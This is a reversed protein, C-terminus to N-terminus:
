FQLFIFIILEKPLGHGYQCETLIKVRILRNQSLCYDAVKIRNVFILHFFSLYFGLLKVQPRQRSQLRNWKVMVHLTRTVKQAKMERAQAAPSSKRDKM